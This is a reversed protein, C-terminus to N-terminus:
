GAGATLCSSGLVQSLKVVSGRDMKKLACALPRFQCAGRTM